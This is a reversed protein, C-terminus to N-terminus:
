AYEIVQWSYTHTISIIDRVTYASGSITFSTSTFKSIYGGSGSAVSFGGSNSTSNFGGASNSNLYIISKNPDIENITITTNGSAVGRQISKIMSEGGSNNVSPVSIAM